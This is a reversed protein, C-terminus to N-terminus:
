ASGMRRSPRAGTALTTGETPVGDVEKCAWYFFQESRRPIRASEAALHYELYAMSAFAVCTGRQGQDRIAPCRDLLTVLGAKGAQGSHRSTLPNSPPAEALRKLQTSSLALGARPPGASPNARLGM